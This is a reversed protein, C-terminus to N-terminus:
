VIVQMIDVIDTFFYVKFKQLPLGLNSFPYIRGTVQSTRYIMYNGVGFLQGVTLMIKREFFASEEFIHNLDFKRHYFGLINLNEECSVMNKLNKLCSVLNKGGFVKSEGDERCSRM